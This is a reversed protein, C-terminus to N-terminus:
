KGSNMVLSVGAKQEDGSVEKREDYVTMAGAAPVTTKRRSTPMADHGYLPERMKFVAYIM